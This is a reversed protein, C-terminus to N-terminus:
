SFLKASSFSFTFRRQLYSVFVFVLIYSSKSFRAQGRNITRGEVRKRGLGGQNSFFAVMPWDVLKRRQLTDIGQEVGTAWYHELERLTPM